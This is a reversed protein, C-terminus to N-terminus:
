HSVAAAERWGGGMVVFFQVSDQLQQIQASLFSMRAQAFAREAVILDLLSTKGVAYSARQFKLSTEAVRLSQQANAIFEADHDLARLADAVQGFAVVVTQRYTAFQADFADIAEQKQAQLAGGHFIPATLSGGLSWLSSSAHFLNDASLSQQTLGASLTLSPYLGATAIGVAASAAHLQAEAALIDPRQRVLEAPVVAPLDRPLTFENMAFDPPLWEAPMRSALVTLAHRAVSLQQRLTSLQARDGMLQSEATLEDTRAAKGLAFKRRVLDLNKEDSAIIEELTALQQRAAAINIAQAVAGGTLTLYAAAMQYRQNDAQAQAQEVTRETLGFLDPTYSLSPGFGYSSTTPTGNSRFAGNRSASAALDIQPYLGGQAALVAQQAQALSAKAAALTNNNAVVQSLTQELSPSQFLQWWAAPIAQGYNVKQDQQAVQEGKPLHAADYGPLDPAAPPTFDPGVTCGTLLLLSLFAARNM